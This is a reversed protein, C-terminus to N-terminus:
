KKINTIWENIKQTITKIYWVWNKFIKYKTTDKETITTIIKLEFPKSLPFIESLAFEYLIAGFFAGLIVGILFILLKNIFM